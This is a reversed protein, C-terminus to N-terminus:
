GKPAFLDFFEPFTMLLGLGLLIFTAAIWKGLRVNKGRLLVSLMAWSLVYAIVAVTTKGSLPGVPNYWNLWKDFGNGKGTVEDLVTMLGLTACGIAASLLAAAAPGNAPLSEQTAETRTSLRATTTTM